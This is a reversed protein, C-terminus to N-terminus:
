KKKGIMVFGSARMEKYATQLGKPLGLARMIRVIKGEPDQPFLCEISFGYQKLVNTLDFCNALWTADFDVGVFDKEDSLIPTLPYIKRNIGYAKGIRICSTRIFEYFSRIRSKAEWPKYTARQRWWISATLHQIPDLGVVVGIATLVLGRRLVLRVVDARRAGLALRIGMERVRQRVSYLFTAYVGGAALLLAVLAFTALIVSYFREDAVSRAMRGEMSVIDPIPLNPDLDWIAARIAPAVAGVDLDTRIAINLFSIDPGRVEWPMYLEPRAARGYSTHQVNAAVGVVMAERGVFSITKGLPNVEGFLTEAANEGLVVPIPDVREDGPQIDRGSLIPVELASLFGPTM